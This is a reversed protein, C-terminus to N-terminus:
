KATGPVSHSQPAGSEALKKEYKTQEVQMGFQQGGVWMRCLFDVGGYKNFTVDGSKHGSESQTPVFEVFASYKGTSDEIMLTSSGFTAPRVTYSGAPLKTNAAYFPFTTTFTLGNVIQASSPIAFFLCMLVSAGVLKLLNKM